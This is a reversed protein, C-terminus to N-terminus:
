HHKVAYCQCLTKVKSVYYIPAPHIFILTKVQRMMHKNFTFGFVLNYFCILQFVKKERQKSDSPQIILM